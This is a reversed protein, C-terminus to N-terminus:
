APTPGSANSRQHTRLWRGIAAGAIGTVASSLTGFVLIQSPVDALSVSIAIALLACVGGAIAGGLLDPRLAGAARWAYLGGAFLSLTMGGIAFFDNKILPVFHGAIVMTIQLLWGIWTAVWLARRNM